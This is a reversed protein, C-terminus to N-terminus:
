LEVWERKETEKKGWWKHYGPNSIHSAGMALDNRLYYMNLNGNQFIVTYGHKDALKIGADFTYGYYDCNPFTFDTDYKITKAGLHESNFESIIVRPRYHTLVEDLIWYDNGDIDISLLDFDNPVNHISLTEIINQKTIFSKYVGPFDKGDVLLGQWGMESFIKTNSLHIGDWAGLDVFFKNTAGMRDFIFKLYNSEGNQCYGVKQPVKNLDKIWGM